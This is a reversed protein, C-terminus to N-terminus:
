RAIVMRRAQRTPGAQLEYVYVGSAVPEGAENRGDWYAANSRSEYIGPERRGLDLTRVLDGGINYIRIVVGSTEALEFPIWTEPNFPNPYNPLLRTMEPPVTSLLQELVAIGARFTESGDDALHAQRVWDRILLGQARNPMQPAAAVRGTSEGFHQAVIILDLIDVSGSQDVDTRPGGAAVQGFNQAVLILDLIDITGDENVDWAPLPTYVFKARWGLGASSVIRHFDTGDPRVAHYAGGREFIVWGNSADPDTSSEGVLITRKKAALDLVYIDRKGFVDPAGDVYAIHTNTVFIPNYPPSGNNYRSIDGTDLDIVVLVPNDPDRYVVRREDPSISPERGKGLDLTEGGAIPTMFVGRVAMAYIIFNNSISYSSVFLPTDLATIGTGDSNMLFLDHNEDRRSSEFVIKSGDPSWSPGSDDQPGDTLAIRQGNSLQVAIDDERQLTLANRKSVSYVAKWSAETESGFMGMMVCSLCIVIGLNLRRM